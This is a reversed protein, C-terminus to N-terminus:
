PGSLFPPSLVTRHLNPSPHKTFLMTQILLLTGPCIGIVQVILLGLRFSEKFPYPRPPLAMVATLVGPQSAAAAKGSHAKQKGCDGKLLALAEEPKPHKSGEQHTGAEHWKVPALIFRQYM